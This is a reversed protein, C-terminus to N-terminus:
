TVQAREEAAAAVPMALWDRMAAAVAEPATLSVMHRHGDIVCLRSRPAAAAMAQAMAPTSNPDGTGTLVLVPVRLGSWGDAYIEDGEAFARYATAYARPDAAGLWGAVRDRIMREAPSDDFWRSLPGAVDFTGNEMEEARACVAARAESPRRFVANLVALRRVLEPHEIALGAAVLAGMSHGAVNVPGCGLARLVDAAWAVFEPLRAGAPLPSTGGHGPMDVALVQHTSALRAIQPEWAEARLGVGHILLLPEGRGAEILRVHDGDSLPLTRPTM